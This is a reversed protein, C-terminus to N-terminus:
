GSMESAEYALAATDIRASRWEVQPTLPDPRSGCVWSIVTFYMSIMRGVSSAELQPIHQTLEPRDAVYDQWPMAQHLAADRRHCATVIRAPDAVPETGLWTEDPEYHQQYLERSDFLWYDTAQPVDM